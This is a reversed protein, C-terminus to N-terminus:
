QRSKGYLEDNNLIRYADNMSILEVYPVRLVNYSAFHIRINVM